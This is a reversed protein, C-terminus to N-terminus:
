HIRSKMKGRRSGAWLYQVKNITIKNIKREKEAIVNMSISRFVLCPKTDSKMRIFFVNNFFPVEDEFDEPNLTQMIVSEGKM